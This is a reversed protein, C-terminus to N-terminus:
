GRAGRRRRNLTAEVRLRVEGTRVRRAYGRRDEELLRAMGEEGCRRLLLAKLELCRRAREEGLAVQYDFGDGPLFADPDLWDPEHTTAALREDIRRLQPDETRPSEVAVKAVTDIVHFALDADIARADALRRLAVIMPEAKLDYAVFSALLGNYTAGPRPPRAPEIAERLAALSRECLGDAELTIAAPITTM